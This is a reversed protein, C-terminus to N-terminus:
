GAAADELQALYARARSQDRRRSGELFAELSARARTPRGARAQAIGEWLLPETAEPWLRAARRSAAVADDLRGQGTREHLEVIARALSVLAAPDDPAERVAARAVAVQEALARDSRRRRRCGACRVPVSNFNFRLSEYWYKQERGSFVFVLGCQM